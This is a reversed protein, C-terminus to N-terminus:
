IKNFGQHEGQSEFNEGRSNDCSSFNLTASQKICKVGVQVWILEDNLTPTVLIMIIMVFHTWM